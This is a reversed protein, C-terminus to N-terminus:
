EKRAKIRRISINHVYEMVFDQEKKTIKYSNPIWFETPENITTSKMIKLLENENTPLNPLQIKRHADEFDPGYTSKNPDRHILKQHELFDEKAKTQEKNFKNITAICANFIITSIYAFASASQGTISSTRYPDFKYTYKLIYEIALSQMEDKFTYNSFQPRTIIKQTMTMIMQGFLNRDRDTYTVYSLDRLKERVERKEKQLGTEGNNTRNELVIYDKRLQEIQALNTEHRLEPHQELLKANNILVLESNLVPELLYSHKVDAM